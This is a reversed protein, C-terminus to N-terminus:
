HGSEVSSQLMLICDHDSCLPCLSYPPRPLSCACLVWDMQCSVCRGHAGRTSFLRLAQMDSAPFARTSPSHASQDNRALEHCFKLHLSVM